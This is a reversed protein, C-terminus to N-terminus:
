GTPPSARSLAAESSGPATLQLGSPRERIRPRVRWRVAGEQLFHLPSDPVCPALCGVELFPRSALPINSGVICRPSTRVRAERPRTAQCRTFVVSRLTSRNISSLRCSRSERWWLSSRISSSIPRFRRNPSLYHLMMRNQRVQPPALEDLCEDDEQAGKEARMVADLAPLGVLHVLYRRPAKRQREHDERHYPDEQRRLHPNGQRDHENQTRQCGRPRGHMVDLLEEAVELSPLTFMQSIRPNTTRASITNPTM